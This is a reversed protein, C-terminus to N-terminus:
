PGHLRTRTFDDDWSDFPKDGFKFCIFVYNKGFGVVKRFRLRLVDVIRPLVVWLFRMRFFNRFFSLLLLAVELFGLLFDDFLM